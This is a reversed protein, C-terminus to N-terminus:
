SLHSRGLSKAWEKPATNLPCYLLKTIWECRKESSFIKIFDFLCFFKSFWFFGTSFRWFWSRFDPSNQDPFLEFVLLSRVL